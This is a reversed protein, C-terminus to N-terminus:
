EHLFREVGDKTLSKLSIDLANRNAVFLDTVVRGDTGVIHGAGLESEVAVEHGKSIDAEVGCDAAVFSDHMDDQAITTVKM